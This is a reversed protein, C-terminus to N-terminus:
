TKLRLNRGKLTSCFKLALKPSTTRRSRTSMDIDLLECFQAELTDETPLNSLSDCTQLARRLLGQVQNKEQAAKLYRAIANLRDRQDAM